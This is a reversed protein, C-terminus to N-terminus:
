ASLGHLALANQSLIGKGMRDADEISLMDLEVARGLVRQLATKTQRAALWILEPESAEDSGHFLKNAPVSGLFLELARDIYLTSWPILVSLEIYIRPFIAALFAAEEMWPYGCHILVIPQSVYRNILPMLLSPRAYRMVVDPDGGGTHIHLPMKVDNAVGLAVHLLHDRVPKSIARDEQWGSDKWANFSKQVQASDPQEVDLGTRYAIITKFAITRPDSAATKLLEVYRAGLDLFNHTDQIASLILPEIRVVRHVPTGTLAEFDESACRPLPYGDDVFLGVLNQDTLLRKIYGAPDEQLATQRRGAVAEPRCNFFAALWRQAATTLLTNRTMEPVMHILDKDISNSSDICMGMLTLRDLWGSPDAELVRKRNFGHCHADVVEADSFDLRNETTM